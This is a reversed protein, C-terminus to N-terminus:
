ELFSKGAMVVAVALFLWPWYKVPLFMFHDHQVELHPEGPLADEIPTLRARTRRHLVYVSLASAAFVVAFLLDVHASAQPDGQPPATVVAFAVGVFLWGLFIMPVLWGRGRWFFAMLM